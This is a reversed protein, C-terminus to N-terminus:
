VFKFTLRKETIRDFLMISNKDISVKFTEETDEHIFCENALNYYAFMGNSIYERRDVSFATGNLDKELTYSIFIEDNNYNLVEIKIDDIELVNGVMGSIIRTKFPNAIEDVFLTQPNQILEGPTAIQQLIGGNLVMVRDAFSFAEYLSSTAFIVTEKLARLKPLYKKFSREREYGNLLAFVDDILTISSQRLELRALALAIIENEFLRFTTEKYFPELGYEKAVNYAIIKRENKEIKRLKLPYELNFKVNRKKILGGDDYIFRIDRNKLKANTIDVGNLLIKGKTAPYLGAICKLLSTKGGGSKALIAIKEGDQIQVNIDKFSEPGYFYSQSLDVLELM